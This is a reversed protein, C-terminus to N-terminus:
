DRVNLSHFNRKEFFTTAILFRSSCQALHHWSPLIMHVLSRLRVVVQGFVLNRLVFVTKRTQMPHGCPKENRGACLGCETLPAAIV